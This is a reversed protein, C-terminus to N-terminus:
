DANGPIDIFKKVATGISRTKKRPSRISISYACVDVDRADRALGNDQKYKGHYFTNKINQALFENM